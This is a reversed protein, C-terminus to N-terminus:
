GLKFSIDLRFIMQSLCFCSIYLRYVCNTQFIKGSVHQLGEWCITWFGAKLIKPPFVAKHVNLAQCSTRLKSMYNDLTLSQKVKSDYGSHRHHSLLSQSAGCHDQLMCKLQNGGIQRYFNGGNTSKQSVPPLLCLMGNKRSQAHACISLIAHTPRLMRVVTFFSQRITEWKAKLLQRTHYPGYDSLISLDYQTSFKM